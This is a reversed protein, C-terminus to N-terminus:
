IVYRKMCFGEIGVPTCVCYWDDTSEKLNIELTTGEAVVALVEAEVSPASRINLRECNGVCGEEYTVAVPEDEIELGEFEVEPREEISVCVPEGDILIEDIMFNENGM